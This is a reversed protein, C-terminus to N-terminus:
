FKKSGSDLSIALEYSIENQLLDLATQLVNDNKLIQKIRGETGEILGAFEVIIREQLQKSEQDFMIDIQKEYFDSLTSLARITEIKTSDLSFLEQKLLKLNEEGPLQIPIELSDTFIRFKSILTEDAIVDTLNKYEYKNKQAFSFFIGYNSYKAALVPLKLAKVTSDPTIGGGGQVSRGNKTFFLSDEEIRNLVFKKDIYDRKQILRGSPIFYKATTIKLSRTKDIGLVRQVLGKGFSKEGMILGRDLDQIAGSVIESASASGQNILVVLKIDLPVIPSNKSLFSKNSDKTRGATTVLIEGKPIFLDLISVASNLLGGPNNRLDIIIEGANRDLLDVLAKRMAAPANLSFRNLRIYGTSENLMASYTIDKVEILARNLNFTLIEKRGYRKIKLVVPTGKEGRMFNAAERLSIHEADHEDIKIIIDGSLIGASKAPGGDMPSIVSLKKNRLGLEIGIGGYRGKAMVDISYHEEDEIYVTYPDLNKTM